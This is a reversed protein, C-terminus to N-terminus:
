FTGGRVRTSATTNASWGRRPGSPGGRAAAMEILLNNRAVETLEEGKKIGGGVRVEFQPATARARDMYLRLHNATM